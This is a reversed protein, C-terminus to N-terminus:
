QKKWVRQLRNAQNYQLRTSEQNRNKASLHGASSYTFEHEEPAQINANKVALLHNSDKAYLYEEIVAISDLTTQKELRNGVPDYTYRIDGYIGQAQTLRNTADYIFSQDFLPNAPQDIQQINNNLDYHYNVTSAQNNKALEYKSMRGDTDYSVTKSMGNGYDVKELSGFPQYSISDALTTSLQHQQSSVSIVRGLADRDYSVVQGSPYVIGSLQGADDYQYSIQFNYNDINHIVSLAQGQQSYQLTTNGADNSFGTLQGIGHNGVAVEDYTFYVDESADEPFHIHTLRNLADYTFQKEVGRADISATRNGASDYTYTTTGTDPSTLTLLNDFADYRYETVLNRQDKVAVLRSLQDYTYGITHSDPATVTTLRSLADYGQQTTHSKGDTSAILKDVNDYDYNVQQGHNGSVTQLRSLEDFVRSVSRIITNDASYVTESIINGANDLEYAIRENLNNTIATLRRAEDYNFVLYAGNPQTIRTVMGISNYEYATAQDGTDAKIRMTELWGRDTYSYEIILGNPDEIQTPEGDNNHALVRTVHGEANTIAQLRGDTYQYTTVDAVDTRPGDARQLQGLSNYSYSWQQEEGISAIPMMVAASLLAAIKKNQLIMHM